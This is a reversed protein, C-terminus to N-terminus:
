VSFLGLSTLSALLELREHCFYPLLSGWFTGQSLEMPWCHCSLLIFGRLSRGQLLVAAPNKVRRLPVFRETCLVSLHTHVSGVFHLPACVQIM